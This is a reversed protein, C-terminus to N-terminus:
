PSSHTRNKKEALHQLVFQNFRSATDSDIQDTPLLQQGFRGLVELPDRRATEPQASTELLVVPAWIIREFGSKRKTEEAAAVLQMPVIDIDLGDPRWGTRKGLLHISAEAGSLAEVVLSQVENGLLTGLDKGPEPTVRYGAGELERVLSRYSPLMDGAPTAVFVTRGNSPGKHPGEPTSKDKPHFQFGLEKLRKYIGEALRKVAAEYEEIFTVKGRWFLLDIRDAYQDERYFQVAEIGLLPEPIEDDSVKHKDVRFIRGQGAPPEFM